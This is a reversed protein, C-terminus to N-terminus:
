ALRCDCQLFEDTNPEKAQTKHTISVLPVSFVQFLRVLSEKLTSSLKRFLMYKVIFFDVIENKKRQNEM